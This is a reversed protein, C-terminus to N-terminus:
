SPTTQVLKLSGYGLGSNLEYQLLAQWNPLYELTQELVNSGSNLRIKISRKTMRQPHRLHIVQLDTTIDYMHSIMTGTADLELIEWIAGIPAFAQLELTNAHLNCTTWNPNLCVPYRAILESVGNVEREILLEDEIEPRLFKLEDFTNRDLTVVNEPNSAHYIHHKASTTEPLYKFYGDLDTLTEQVEGQKNHLRVGHSEIILEAEIAHEDLEIQIPYPTPQAGREDWAAKWRFRKFQGYELSVEGILVKGEIPKRKLPEGRHDFFQWELKPLM